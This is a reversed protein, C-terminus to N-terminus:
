KPLVPTCKLIQVDGATFERDIGQALEKESYEGLVIGSLLESVEYRGPNLNLVSLRTTIKDKDAVGQRLQQLDLYYSAIVYRVPGKELCYIRIKDSSADVWQHVESYDCLAKLVACSKDWDVAGTFLIVEGQGLKWRVVAPKNGSLSALVDVEKSVNIARVSKMVLQAKQLPSGDPIQARLFTEREYANKPQESYFPYRIASNVTGVLDVSPFHLAKLLGFDEQGTEVTYRGAEISVVLRGGSKVYEYFRDQTARSMVSVDGDIVVLKLGSFLNLPTYDTFWRPLIHEKENWVQSIADGSIRPQFARVVYRAYDHSFLSGAELPLPRTEKLEQLIKTWKSFYPSLNIDRVKSLKSDLLANWRNFNAQGDAQTDWPEPFLYHWQVSYSTGLGGYALVTFLGSNLSWKDTSQAPNPEARSPIGWLDYVSVLRQYLEEQSGGTTAVVHYKKFLPYHFEQAGVGHYQYHVIPTMTDYERITSFMREMWGYVEHQRFDCFDVCAPRLDVPRSWDPEPPFVDDWTAYDAGYRRGVDALSWGYDDQLFRRFRVLSDSSYGAALDPWLDWYAWDVGGAGALQYGQVAPHNRYRLVIQRWLNQLAEQCVSGSVSASFSAARKGVDVALSSAGSQYRTVESLLWRPAHDRFFWPAIVVKLGRASAMEIFRDCADFQYVGPLPELDRWLIELDVTQSGDIRVQDMGRGYRDMWEQFNVQDPPVEGFLFASGLSGGEKAVASLNGASFTKEATQRGAILLTKDLLKGDVRLEAFIRYAGTASPLTDEFVGSDGQVSVGSRKEEKVPEFRWNAVRWVIEKTGSLGAANYQVKFGITEDTAFVPCARGTEIELLSAPQTGCEFLNGGKHAPTTNVYAIFYKLDVLTHDARWVRAEVFYVGPETIPLNLPTRGSVDSDGSNITVEKTYSGVVPGQWSTRARLGIRYTGPTSVLADLSVFPADDWGCEKYNLGTTGWTFLKWTQQLAPDGLNFIEWSAKTFNRDEEVAKLNRLVIRGVTGIQSIELGILKMPAQPLAGKGKRSIDALRRTQLRAWGPNVVPGDGRVLLDYVFMRGQSDQLITKIGVRAAPTVEIELSQTEVSLELPKSLDLRVPAKSLDSLFLSGDEVNVKCASGKAPMWQQTVCLNDSSVTQGAAEGKQLSPSTAAYCALSAVLFVGSTFFRKIRFFRVDSM